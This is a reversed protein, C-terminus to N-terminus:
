KWDLVGLQDALITLCELVPELDINNRFRPTTSDTKPIEHDDVLYAIMGETLLQAGAQSSSTGLDRAIADLAQKIIPWQSVEIKIQVRRADAKQKSSLAAKNTIADGLWEQTKPDAEILPPKPRKKTM